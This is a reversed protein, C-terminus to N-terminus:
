KKNVLEKLVKSAKFGVSNSAKIEIKEMTKPNIGTRSARTKIELKGFQAIDVTEKKVLSEIITEFVTEVIVTGEKKNINLKESIINSLEKKNM